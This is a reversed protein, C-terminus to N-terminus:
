LLELFSIANNMCTIGSDIVYAPADHRDLSILCDRLQDVFCHADNVREQREAGILIQADEVAWRTRESLLMLHEVTPHHQSNGM